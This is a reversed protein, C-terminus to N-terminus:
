APHNTAQKNAIPVELQCIILSDILSFAQWASVM